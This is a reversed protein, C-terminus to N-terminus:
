SVRDKVVTVGAAKLGDYSHTIFSIPNLGGIVTNSFPCTIFTDSPEVLTVQIEPAIRRLFRAATAGGFGGGIIAVRGRAQALAPAAFPGLGAMIAGLGIGKVVDRRTTRRTM